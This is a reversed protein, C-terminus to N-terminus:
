GPAGSIQPSPTHVLGIKKQTSKIEIAYPLAKISKIWQQLEPYKDTIPDERLIDDALEQIHVGLYDAVWLGGNQMHCRFADYRFSVIEETCWDYLMQEHNGRLFVVNEEAALKSLLWVLNGEPRTARTQGLQEEKRESYDPAPQGLTLRRFRDVAQGLRSRLRPRSTETLQGVHVLHM